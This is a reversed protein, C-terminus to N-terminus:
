LGELRIQEQRKEEGEQNRIYKRITQEDLGITSVCYGRAWFHLGTSNRKRGLFERHIRVAAKEQLFGVTNAVSYKPPISLCLHIHGLMAHVELLDVRRPRSRTTSVFGTSDRRDTKKSKQLDDPSSVEARVSHSIQLVMERPVPKALREHHGGEPKASQSSTM